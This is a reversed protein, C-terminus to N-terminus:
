LLLFYSTWPIVGGALQLSSMNPDTNERCIGDCGMAHWGGVGGVAPSSQNTIANNVHSSGHMWGITLCLCLCGSSSRDSSLWCDLRLDPFNCDSAPFKLIRQYSLPPPRADGAIIACLTTETDWQIMTRCSIIKVPGTRGPGSGVGPLIM